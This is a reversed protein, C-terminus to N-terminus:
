FIELIDCSVNRFLHALREDKTCSTEDLQRGPISIGPVDSIIDDSIMDDSIM